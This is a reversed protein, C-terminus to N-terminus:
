RLRKYSRVSSSWIHHGRLPRPIPHEENPIASTLSHTCLFTLVLTQVFISALHHSSPPRHPRPIARQNHRPFHLIQIHCHSYSFTSLRNVPNLHSFRARTTADNLSRQVTTIKTHEVSSLRALQARRMGDDQWTHRRVTYDIGCMMYPCRHSNNKITSSYVHHYIPYIPHSKPSESKCM